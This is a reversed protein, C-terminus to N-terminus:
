SSPDRESARAIEDGCVGLEGEPALLRAFGAVVHQQCL